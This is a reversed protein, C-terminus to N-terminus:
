WSPFAKFSVFASSSAPQLKMGEWTSARQGAANKGTREGDGPATQYRTGMGAHDWEAKSWNPDWWLWLAQKLGCGM